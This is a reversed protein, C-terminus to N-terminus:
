KVLGTLLNFVAYFVPLSVTIVLLKGVFVLKEALGKFGLDGVTEAGFETIYGIATIKLIIKYFTNNIGSLEVIQNVFSFIQSLYKLAVGLLIVGVVIILLTAIENNVNKLSLVILAGLIVFSVIQVM